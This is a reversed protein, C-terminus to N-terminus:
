EGALLKDVLRTQPAGIPKPFIKALRAAFDPLCPIKGNRRRAQLTYSRGDRCRIEVMGEEDCAALVRSPQRDLDRVTFTKMDSIIDANASFTLM